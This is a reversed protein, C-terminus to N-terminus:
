DDIKPPMPEWQDFWAAQGQLTGQADRVTWVTAQRIRFRSGDSAIRVGQYDSIFGKDRVAKLLREREGREPAEASFRSPMGILQEWTLTFRALASQNGYNFLPDAETGHSLQVFPAEWLKRGLEPDDLSWNGLLVGTREWHSHALLQAHKLLFHNSPSPRDM